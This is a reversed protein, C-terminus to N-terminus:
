MGQRSPGPGSNPVRINPVIEVMNSDRTNFVERISNRVNGHDFISYLQQDNEDNWQNQTTEIFM